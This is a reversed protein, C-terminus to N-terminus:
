SGSGAAELAAWFRRRSAEEDFSALRDYQEQVVRDYLGRDALLSDTHQYAAGM